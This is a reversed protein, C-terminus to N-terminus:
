DFGEPQGVVVFSLAEPRLLEKAVRRIDGLTVAEVMANRNEVYEPGLGQMQMGVLIQAIPGNGDFRLPYAGTLYTKAADLEEASVGNQAMKVWEARIVEIAEAIRDNASAVHGMVLAAHDKPVLYSYIGYTLGRKERLETMLRAEFGSGGLIQNLVYATFFDPHDRELGQHGFLAVSQPTDFPVVHVGGDSKVAIDGSFPRGTKPLDGLLDDLLLGLEHATIDGAAAAYVRDLAFAGRHAEVLDDRNLAKVSEESGDISSGYPHAGFARADFVQSAIADPDKQDSRIGSLIQQRVREIAADDFRPEILALRLLAMAEERTESLFRVSVSVTDDGVDFGIQAAIAERAAAFGQADLAGAGEELTHVMLNMGGRKALDLTGGGKFRLELAVFPISHDEVLWANIGGPSTLEVIETQARLPAAFFLLILLIIRTM